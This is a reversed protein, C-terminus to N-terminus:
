FVTHLVGTITSFNRYRKRFIGQKCFYNNCIISFSNWFLIEGVDELAKVGCLVESQVGMASALERAETYRHEDAVVVYRAGCILAQEMLTRLQSHGTIAFVRYREPHRAIVDITSCGISGTAGLITVTQM